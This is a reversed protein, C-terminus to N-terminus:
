KTARLIGYVGRRETTFSGPKFGAGRAMEEIESLEFFRFVVDPFPRLFTTAYLKGGPRLARYVEGLALEADPVCHMAAGWHVADLSADRFPLDGADGRVVALSRPAGRDRRTSAVLETLMERSYDLAVVRRFSGSAALRRAIFGTGCSVDAIVGSGDGQLFKAAEAYEADMGGVRLGAAWVPPLLREYIFPIVPSAFMDRRLEPPREREPLMEVIEDSCLSGVLPQWREEFVEALGEGGAATAALVVAEARPAPTRLKPLHPGAACGAHVFASHCQLGTRSVALLAALFITPLAVALALQRLVRPRSQAGSPTAGRAKRHTQVPMAPM